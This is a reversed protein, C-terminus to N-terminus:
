VCPSQSRFIKGRGDMCAYYTDNTGSALHALYIDGDTRFGRVFEGDDEFLFDEKARLGGNIIVPNENNGLEGRENVFFGTTSEEGQITLREGLVHDFLGRPALIENATIREAVQASKMECIGDIKCQNADKITTTPGLNPKEWFWASVLSFLSVVLIMSLVGAVFYFLKNM